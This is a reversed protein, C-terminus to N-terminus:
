VNPCKKHKEIGCWVFLFGLPPACDHVYPCTGRRAFERNDKHWPNIQPRGVLTFMKFAFLRFELKQEIEYYLTHSRSGCFSHLTALKACAIGCAGWM